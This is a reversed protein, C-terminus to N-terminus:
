NVLSNNNPQSLVMGGGGKQLSWNHGGIGGLGVVEFVVPQCLAAVKGPLPPPLNAMSNRACCVLDAM